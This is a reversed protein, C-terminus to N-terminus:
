RVWRSRVAEQLLRRSVPRLEEPHGRLYALLRRRKEKGRGSAPVDTSILEPKADQVRRHISIWQKKVASLSIGLADALHEDTLGTLAFTLLRQESQSLGVVPPHYDFLAGAWSGMLEGRDMDRSVGLVHPKHLVDALTERRASTYAGTLPDWFRAGTNLALLLYDMSEPQAAIIEKWLYGRHKEIFTSMMFRLWEGNLESGGRTTGEWCLLNLGGQSNAERVEKGTLLPSRGRVLRSALEAGVWFHPPKKLDDLFDDTVFVSIGIWCIPATTREESFMVSTTQADSELLLSLAAPLEEIAKGYRPGVVPHNRLIDVCEPIDGRQM